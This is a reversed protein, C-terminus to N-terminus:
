YKTTLPDSIWALSAARSNRIDQKSHVARSSTKRMGVVGGVEYILNSVGVHAVTRRGVRGVGSAGVAEEGASRNIGKASSQAVCVERVDVCIDGLIHDVCINQM